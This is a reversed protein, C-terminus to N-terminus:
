NDLLGLAKTIFSDIKLHDGPEFYVDSNIALNRSSAEQEIKSPPFLTDSFGHISVVKVGLDGLKKRVGYMDFSTIIRAMDFIKRGSSVEPVKIDPQNKLLNSYRSILDRITDSGMMSAPNLFVMEKIRNPVELAALASSIAGVSHAIVSIKELGKLNLLEILEKAKEEETGAPEFSIVRRKGTVVIRQIAKKYDDIRANWGLIFFIPRMGASNEPRIDISPLVENAFQFNERASFQEEFLQNREGFEPSSM